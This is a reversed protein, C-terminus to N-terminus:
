SNVCLRLKWLSGRERRNTTRVLNKSNQKSLVPPKKKVRDGNKYSSGSVWGSVFVEFHLEEKM